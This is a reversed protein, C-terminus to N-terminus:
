SLLIRRAYEKFRISSVRTLFLRDVLYCQAIVALIPVVYIIPFLTLPGIQKFWFNHIWLLVWHWLYLWMTHSGVFRVFRCGLIAVIRDPVFLLGGMLLTSIALAYSFYCIGPPFKDFQTWPFTGYSYHQVVAHIGFFTGFTLVYFLWEIWSMDGSRMGYFAIASYGILYPIVLGIVRIPIEGEGDPFFHRAYENIALWAFFVSAFRGPSSVKKYLRILPPTFLATLFFVRIIWVGVPGSLLAFSGIINATPVPDWCARIAIFIVLFIWTPIVLRIFRDIVYQRYPRPRSFRMACFGGVMVLLPVDFNRLQFALNDAKIGCHAFIVATIGVFRLIDLRCDREM